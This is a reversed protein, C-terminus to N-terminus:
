FSNADRSIESASYNFLAVEFGSFIEAFARKSFGAPEAAQGLTLQGREYLKAALFGALQKADLEVSDPIHLTITKM